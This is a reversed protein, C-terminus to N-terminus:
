VVVCLVVCLVVVCVVVGVVVGGHVAVRLVGGLPFTTRMVPPIAKESRVSVGREASIKKGKELLDEQM